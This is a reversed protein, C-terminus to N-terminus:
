AAQPPLKVEPVMPPMSVASPTTWHVLSMAGNKEEVLASCNEVWDGDNFYEIGDVMDQEPHHIHGCIIGDLNQRKAEACGAKKYRAIAARASEVQRKLYGALSWYPLGLQRRIGNNIRNIWLLFDYAKDGVLAFWKGYCLVDADFQDGHVILYQKGNRGYHIASELLQINGFHFGTYNRLPADHNGPIYIVRTGHESLYILKDLVKQHAKPWHMRKNLAWMDVIDGVLYLTDIYCNDLFSLLFDAKCDKYGLHIDSIWVTPYHRQEM